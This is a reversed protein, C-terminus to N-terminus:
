EAPSVSAAPKESASYYGFSIEFDVYQPPEESDDKSAVSVDIARTQGATLEGFEYVKRHITKQWARLADYDYAENPDHPQDSTRVILQGRHLTLANPNTIEFHLQARDNLSKPRSRIVNVAGVQTPVQGLFERDLDLVHTRLDWFPRDPDGPNGMLRQCLSQQFDCREQLKANQAALQSVQSELVSRNIFGLSAAIISMGLAGVATAQIWLPVAVSGVAAIPTPVVAESAVPEPTANAPAIHDPPSDPVVGAPVDGHEPSAPEAQITPEDSGFAFEPTWPKEEEAVADSPSEIGETEDLVAVSSVASPEKTGADLLAQIEEANM